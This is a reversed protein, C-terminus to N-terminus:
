RFFLDRARTLTPMSKQVLPSDQSFPYSAGMVFNKILARVDMVFNKILADCM